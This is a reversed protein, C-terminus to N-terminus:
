GADNERGFLLNESETTTQRPIISVPLYCGPLETLRGHLMQILMSSLRRGIAHTPHSFSSIGLDAIESRVDVGSIVSVQEPVSIGRRSLEEMAGMAHPDGAFLMADPLYGEQDLLQSIARVAHKEWMGGCNIMRLTIEGGLPNGIGASLGAVRHAMSPSKDAGPYIFLAFRKRGCAKLAAGARQYASFTDTAVFNVTECYRLTNMMVYPKGLRRCHDIIIPSHVDGFTLILGDLEACREEVEKAPLSDIDEHVSYLSAFSIRPGQEMIYETASQIIRRFWEDPNGESAVDSRTNVGVRFKEIQGSTKRVYTGSGHRAELKGEREWRSVVNRVTGESIGIQSAIARSSPLRDGGTLERKEFYDRLFQEVKQSPRLGEPHSNASAPAKDEQSTAPFAM